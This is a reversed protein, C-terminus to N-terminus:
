STATAPRVRDTDPRILLYASIAAVLALVGSFLFANRYGLAPNAAAQVITGVLLPAVLGALAYVAVLIGLATGRQAPPAIETALPAAVVFVVVPAAVSVMVLGVILMESRAYALAFFAIGTVVIGAAGVYGRAFPAPRDRRQLAEILAGVLVYVPIQLPFAIALLWGAKIPSIGIARELFAPLWVIDVVNAWYCAFTGFVVGLMTPALILRRFSVLAPADDRARLTNTAPSERRVLVLWTLAWALSLMGMAGFAIHWGFRAIMWPCALAAAATGLPAGAAVLGTVLPRRAESFRQYAVHLAMPLAPGEGAGLFIRSGILAGIPVIAILPVQAVTWAIALAALVLRPDLRDGLRGVTLACISFLVFFSSGLAGFQAPSLRYENMIPVAALGFVAKDAFNIAM